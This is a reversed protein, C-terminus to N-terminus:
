KKENEISLNRDKKLSKSQKFSFNVCNHGKAPREGTSYHINTKKSSLAM